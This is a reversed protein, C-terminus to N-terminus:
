ARRERKQRREARQTKRSPKRCKGIVRPGREGDKLPLFAGARCFDEVRIAGGSAAVVRKMTTLRPERIPPGGDCPILRSLLSPNVGMQVAFDERTQGTRILFDHLQQVLLM